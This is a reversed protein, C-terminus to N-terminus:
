ASNTFSKKRLGRHNQCDRVELCFERAETVNIFIIRKKPPPIITVVLNRWHNLLLLREVIPTELPGYQFVSNRWRCAM